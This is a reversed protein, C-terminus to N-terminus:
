GCLTEKELDRLHIALIDDTSCSCGPLYIALIYGVGHKYITIPQFGGTGLQQMTHMKPSSRRLQKVASSHCGAVPEMDDDDLTTIEIMWGQADTPSKSNIKAKLKALVADLLM